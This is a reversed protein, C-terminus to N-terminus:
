VPGVLPEDNRVMRGWLREEKLGEGNSGGKVKGEDRRRDGPTTRGEAM